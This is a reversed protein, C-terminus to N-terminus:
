WGTSMVAIVVGRDFATFFPRQASVIIFTAAYQTPCIAMGAEEVVLAVHLKGTIKGGFIDTRTVVVPPVTLGLPASTGYSSWPFSSIDRSVFDTM